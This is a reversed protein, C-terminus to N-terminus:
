GRFRNLKSISVSNKKRSFEIMLSVFVVAEFVAMVLVLLAYVAGNMENLYSAAFAFNIVAANIIIEISIIIYMGNRKSIIGYVGIVFLIATLVLVDEFAVM